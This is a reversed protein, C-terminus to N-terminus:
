PPTLPALRSYKSLLMNRIQSLTQKGQPPTDGLKAVCIRKRSGYVTIPECQNPKLKELAARNSYLLDGGVWVM